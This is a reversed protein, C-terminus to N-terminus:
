KLQMLEASLRLLSVEDFHSTMIQLGFPMGEPHTFLPISIGPIGALNAFVTYIDALFMEVPDQQKEGIKFATSPVTPSIVADYNSFITTTKESILRRVQQAKTFYAEFYGASLVFTGLLIRRQVEKGFGESRTLKYMDALEETAVKTRHGFRVGDYRSLNSSAEATTLVYYTPVVYELLEFDIAEVIHGAATLKKIFLSIEDRIVPDLGPHELAQRFYAIRYKKDAGAAIEKSYAPVPQTSVTSDYADPGAIVELLLAADAVTNTFIGIQDFSSAYALLGYRSIRGYTPKLGIIGCFDAPQRVSGGTDSGLSVMCLGAQVAVASGGSSGGPVRTHDLANKVPGYASKENSSGMAFEDCNQRGIIIAGEALLRETATANYISVFDELIRSAASVRHDKYCIVDKLGVVVGHLKGLPEGSALRADLEAARQLAEAAYVELYANLERQAEIARIYFHVAEVCTTQGNQLATHYDKITSFRFM